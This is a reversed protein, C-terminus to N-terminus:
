RYGYRRKKKASSKARNNEMRKRRAIKVTNFGMQELLRREKNTLTKPSM